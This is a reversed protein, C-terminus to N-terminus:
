LSPRSAHATPARSNERPPAFPSSARKQAVVFYEATSHVLEETEVAVLGAADVSKLLAGITCRWVYPIMGLRVALRVALMAIRVPVTRKEGLCPTVSVLLGGPKLVDEMKRLAAPADELLHLVSFALVVDFSDPELSGDLLAAQAFSVNAVGRAEAADRADAIMKSSIDIGHIAKVCTALKLDVGGKACGVDLVTDTSKLYPRTKALVPSDTQGSDEAPGAWTRALRDWFKEAKTKQPKSAEASTM